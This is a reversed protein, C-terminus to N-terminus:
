LAVQENQNWVYDELKKRFDGDSFYKVAVELKAIHNRYFEIMAKDQLDERYSLARDLAEQTTILAQNARAAYANMHRNEERLVGIIGIDACVTLLYLAYFHM